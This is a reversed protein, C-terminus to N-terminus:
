VTITFPEGAFRANVGPVNLSETSGAETQAAASPVLLLWLALSPVLPAFRKCVLRVVLSLIGSAIHRAIIETM